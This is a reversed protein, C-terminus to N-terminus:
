PMFSTSAYDYNKESQCVFCYWRDKLDPNEEFDNDTSSDDYLIDEDQCETKSNDNKIKGKKKGKRTKNREDKQKSNQKTKIM